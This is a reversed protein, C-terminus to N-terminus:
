IHILSLLLVTKGGLNIRLDDKANILGLIPQVMNSNNAINKTPMIERIHTYAWRNLPGFQWTEGTIGDPRSDNVALVNMGAFIALLVISAVSRMLM